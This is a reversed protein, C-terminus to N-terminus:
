TCFVLRTGRSVHIDTPLLFGELAPFKEESAELERGVEVLHLGACVASDSMRSVIPIEGLQEINMENMM